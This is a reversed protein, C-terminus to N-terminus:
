LAALMTEGGSIECGGTGSEVNLVKVVGRDILMAYRKSRGILGREANTFDMGLARTLEGAPDGLMRIGADSAGTSADWAKLVFPDNVALCVIEDVGRGRIADAVRIFSPVHQTSCIGTFAGPVAFLVVKRDALLTETSVQEPGDEGFGVLTAAPIKDGIEVAM